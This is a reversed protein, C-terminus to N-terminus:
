YLISFNQIKINFDNFSCCVYSCFIRFSCCFYKYNFNQFSCGGCDNFHVCKPNISHPSDKIITNIKKDRDNEDIADEDEVDIGAANILQKQLEQNEGRFEGEFTLFYLRFM